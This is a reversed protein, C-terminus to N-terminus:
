LGREVVLSAVAILLGREGCSSFAWTCRHLGLSALFLYTFLNKKFILWSFYSEDAFTMLSFVEKSYIRELSPSLSTM